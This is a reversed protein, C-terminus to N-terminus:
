CQSAGRSFLEKLLSAVVHVLLSLNSLIEKGNLSNGLLAWQQKITIGAPFELIHDIGDKKVLPFAHLSAVERPSFFRPKSRILLEQNDM